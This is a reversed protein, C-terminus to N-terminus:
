GRGFNRRYVDRLHKTAADIANQDYTVEGKAILAKLVEMVFVLEATPSPVGGGGGSRHVATPVGNSDDDMPAAKMVPVAKVITRYIRDQWEREKVEIRWCTGPQFKNLNEPYVDFRNGDGDIVWGVKGGPKPDHRESVQIEM